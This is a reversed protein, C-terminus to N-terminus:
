RLKSAQSSTICCADLKSLFSSALAPLHMVAMVSPHVYLWQAKLADGNGFASCCPYLHKSRYTQQVFMKTVQQLTSWGGLLAKHIHSLCGDLTPNWQLFMNWINQDCSAPKHRAHRHIFILTAPCHTTPVRTAEQFHTAFAARAKDVGCLYPIQMRCQM